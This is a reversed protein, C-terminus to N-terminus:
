AGMMSQLASIGGGVNTESLTKGAAALDPAAAMANADAQAKARAARIAVIEEDSRIIKPLVRLRRAYDQLAEDTDINDMIEPQVAVLNGGLQLVREIAATAVANQADALMSVFDVKVHRGQIEPPPPPILGARAMINFTRNVAPSLAENDARELVPGLQVLQEERRSDIETATRVTELQSIMMFINNFFIEKIRMQIEHIDEKLEQIPPQVTYIPKVGVNNVGAVYTVGGPLLSTPQNKLQVDAIVPPTVMKDIAQAKRKTEQQLQKIDPLADMGPSRGYPDSGTIDWRPCLGPFEHLGAQKLFKTGLSGAIDEWYMERFPFSKPVGADNYSGLNPEIAHCIIFEQALQNGSGRYCAQVTTSCNEIGFWAVIASVSLSFERYVVNVAYRDSNAFYYEGCVVNYCRIVDEYDEYILVCATGFVPLDGWMVAMSNYFNSEQFVRRMRREVEALWRTVPSSDEVDFGDISLHFWPRTPSTIGTMMGSQLVRAALTATSDLIAQNIQQGQNWATRDMLSRFRRPLIYMALESWHRWWSLRIERLGQMRQQAYFILSQALM